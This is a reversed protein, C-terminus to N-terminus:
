ANEQLFIGLTVVENLVHSKQVNALIQRLPMM